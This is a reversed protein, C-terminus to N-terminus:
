AIQRETLFGMDVILNGIRKRDKGIQKKQVELVEELQEKTILDREVLVDGLRRRDPLVPLPETAVEATV